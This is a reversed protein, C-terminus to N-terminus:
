PEFDDYFMYDARAPSDFSNVVAFATSMLLLGLLGCRLKMSSMGGTQSELSQM